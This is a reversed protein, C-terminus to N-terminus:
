LDSSGVPLDDTSTSVHVEPKQPMFIVGEGREREEM